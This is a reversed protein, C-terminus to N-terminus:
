QGNIRVGGESDAIASFVRFAQKTAKVDHVRVIQVGQSLGWLASSLSGGIREDPPEGQSLASIFSKRSTGLMVPVGFDHFISINRLLLLNHELTKGFGIGPDIILNGTDIRHTNCFEIRSKLYAYVDDLVNNYQPNDQMDQPTGQSHMVMVMCGAKSAVNVSESDYSLGSVDNIITAGAKLAADMTRANRTDISIHRVRGQLGEIVPVVRSIEEDIDVVQAGPRTSEGGVDLIDAGEEILQLGHAIANDANYFQGGDSFSDPTVNVVGMIHSGAMFHDKASGSSNNVM